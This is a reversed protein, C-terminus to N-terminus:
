RLELEATGDLFVGRIGGRAGVSLSEKRGQSRIVPIRSGEVKM